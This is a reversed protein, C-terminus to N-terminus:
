IFSHLGVVTLSLSSNPARPSINAETALTRIERIAIMFCSPVTPPANKSRQTVHGGHRQILKGPGCGSLPDFHLIRNSPRSMPLPNDHGVLWLSCESHAKTCNQPKWLRSVKIASELSRSAVLLRRVLYTNGLNSNGIEYSGLLLSCISLFSCVKGM